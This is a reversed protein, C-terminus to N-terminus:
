VKRMAIAVWEGNNERKELNFGLSSYRDIVENERSKIIGSMVMVGNKAVNETITNSLILLVDATINALNLECYIPKSPSELPSDGITFFHSGGSKLQITTENEGQGIITVVGKVLIHSVSYTDAALLLTKDKPTSSGLADGIEKNLDGNPAVYKAETGCTQCTYYGDAPDNEVFSHKDPRCPEVGEALAMPMMSLILSLVLLIALLRKKM